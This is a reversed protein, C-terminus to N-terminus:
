KKANENELRPMKYPEETDFWFQVSRATGAKDLQFEVRTQADEVQFEAPTKPILYFNGWDPSTIELQSGTERVTVAFDDRVYEGILGSTQAKSITQTYGDPQSDLAIFKPAAQPPGVRANLVGILINKIASFMVPRREYTNARHVFILNAAPVVYIAHGHYGLAMYTGLKGLRSREPLTWWLYGYGGTPHTSILQTSEQVWETPVIQKNMWQGKNLFLLGFRALDRASMRIPYFPHHSIKPKFHYYAHRPEFDQMQIPTAIQKDLAELMDGSTKQNYITALAAFDWGNYSWQTGPEHSGRKLRGWEMATSEGAAPLYIGSRAKLLDSVKASKETDTLPSIDDIGISEITEELDVDGEEVAIGYLASLMSKAISHIFFRRETQGWQTLVAGNYIVMVAASNARDSMRQVALLKESSWGAQEPTEYQMWHEAPFVSATAANWESWGETPLAQANVDTVPVIFLSVTLCLAASYHNM